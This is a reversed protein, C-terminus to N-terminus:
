FSWGHLKMPERAHYDYRWILSLANEIWTFKLYGPKKRWATQIGVLKAYGPVLGMSPTITALHWVGSGSMGHPRPPRTRVGDRRDSEAHYDLLFNYTHDFGEIAEMRKFCGAPYDELAARMMKALASYREKDTNQPDTADILTHYEEDEPHLGYPIAFYTFPRVGVWEGSDFVHGCERDVPYGYVAFQPIGRKPNLRGEVDNLRIFRKHQALQRATDRNLRYALVDLRRDNSVFVEDFALHIPTANLGIAFASKRNRYSEMIEHEATLIYHHDDIQLLVGTWFAMDNHSTPKEVYTFCIPLTADPAQFDNGTYCKSVMADHDNM